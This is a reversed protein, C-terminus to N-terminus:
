LLRPLIHSNALNAAFHTAVAAWIGFRMFLLGFVVGAPLVLLHPTTVHQATFALATIVIAWWRASPLRVLWLMLLAQVCGRYFFEEGLSYAMNTFLETPTPFGKVPLSLAMPKFRCMAWNYALLGLLAAGSWFAAEGARVGKKIWYGGQQDGLLQGCYIVVWLAGVLPLLGALRFVLMGVAAQDKLVGIGFFIALGGSFAAAVAWGAAVGM